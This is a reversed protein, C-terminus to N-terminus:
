YLTFNLPSDLYKENFAIKVPVYAELHVSSQLEISNCTVNRPQQSPFTKVIYM